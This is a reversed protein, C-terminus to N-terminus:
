FGIVMKELKSMSEDSLLWTESNLFTELQKKSRVGVLTVSKNIKQLVWKIALQPMSMSNGQLIEDQISNLYSIIAPLKAHFNVYVDRSRRDDEPFRTNINYKGSLIGQALVSHAIFLLNDNEMLLQNTKHENEKAILSYDYSFSLLGESNCNTPLDINTVGFYKIKGEERKRSLEGFIDALPTKGDWYHIQYLDIVDTGLRKLSANLAQSLYNKSNDYYSKGDNGIRVGFKTAIFAKDRIGKLGKSLNTESEGLGYCDATDFFNIGGDIAMPICSILEDVDVGSWGHKGLPGGGFGIRSIRLDSNKIQLYDM